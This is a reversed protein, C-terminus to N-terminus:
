FLSIQTEPIKQLFRSIFTDRHILSSGQLILAEQHKKSGYGKNGAFGYHPFVTDLHTIIEDRYAKALISAAAISISRSEGKIFSETPLPLELPMADILVTAPLTPLLSNSCLNFFARMMAIKTAQYINIEDVVSHPVIGFAYWSNKKLWTAVELRKTETLIKSDVLFPHNAYPFLVTCCALVPGALCGRGVEDIGCILKNEKWFGLELDNKSSHSLKTEM